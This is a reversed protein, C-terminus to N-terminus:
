QKTVGRGRESARVCVCVCGCVCVCVCVCVCRGGGRLGLTLHTHVPFLVTDEETTMPCTLETSVLDNLAWDTPFWDSLLDDEKVSKSNTYSEMVNEISLAPACNQLTRLAFMNSGTNRQSQQVHM